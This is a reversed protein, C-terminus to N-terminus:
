DWHPPRTRAVGPLAAIQDLWGAIGGFRERLSSFPLQLGAAAPKGLARILRQMTPYYVIEAASPADGALWTRAFLARDLAVLEAEVEVAAAAIDHRADDVKNRFLPRIVRRTCPHFRDDHDGIREWVRAVQEASSGFLAPKPHKKELYALIALSDRVVVSGDRLVPVTGRANLRLFEPTKHEQNSAELLKSDYAIGKLELALLVRWCFPSGSFWYVEM